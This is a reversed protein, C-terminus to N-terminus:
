PNVHLNSKMNLSIHILAHFIRMLSPFYTAFSKLCNLTSKFRKPLVIAGIFINEMVDLTRSIDVPITEAISEMNGEAYIKPMAMPNIPCPSDGNMTTIFEGEEIRKMEPLFYSRHHIDDWTKEPGNM